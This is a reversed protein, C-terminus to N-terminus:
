LSRLSPVWWFAVAMTNIKTKEDTEAMITCYVKGKRAETAAIM